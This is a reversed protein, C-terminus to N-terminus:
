IIIYPFTEFFFTRFKGCKEFGVWGVRLASFFYFFVHDLIMKLCFYANQCFIIKEWQFLGFYIELDPLDLLRKTRLFIRLTLGGGM